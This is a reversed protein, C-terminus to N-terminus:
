CRCTRRARRPRRARRRRNAMARPAVGAAKKKKAIVSLGVVGVAAAIGIWGITPIGLYGVPEPEVEPEEPEVTVPTPTPTTPPPRAAVPRKPTGSPTLCKWSGDAQQRASTGTPCRTAEARPVCVPGATTIKPAQGEPCKLGPFASPLIDKPEKTGEPTSPGYPQDPDYIGGRETVGTEKGGTKIGLEEAVGSWFGPEEAPPEPYQEYVGRETVGTEKGGNKATSPDKQGLGFCGIPSANSFIGGALGCGASASVPKGGVCGLLKGSLATPGDFIGGKRYM